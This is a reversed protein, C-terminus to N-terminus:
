KWIFALAIVAKGSRNLLVAANEFGTDPQPGITGSLIEEALSQFTPDGPTVFPLGFSALDRYLAAPM